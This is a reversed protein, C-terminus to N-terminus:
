CGVVGECGVAIAVVVALTCIMSCIPLYEKEGAVSIIVLPVVISHVFSFRPVQPHLAGTVSVSPNSRGVDPSSLGDVTEGTTDPTTAGDNSYMRVDAQFYFQRNYL